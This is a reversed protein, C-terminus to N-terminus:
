KRPQPMYHLEISTKTLKVDLWKTQYGIHKLIEIAPKKTVFVNILVGEQPRPGYVNFGYDYQAAMERLLDEVDGYFDKSVVDDFIRKRNLQERDGKADATMALERQADVALAMNADIKQLVASVEKQESPREQQSQMNACGALLMALCASYRRTSSM